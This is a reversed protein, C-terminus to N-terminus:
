ASLAVLAIMLKSEVISWGELRDLLQAYSFTLDQSSEALRYGRPKGWPYCLCPGIKHQVGTHQISGQM